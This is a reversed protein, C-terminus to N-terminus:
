LALVSIKVLELKKSTYEGLQYKSETWIVGGSGENGPADALGYVDILYDCYEKISGVFLPNSMKRGIDMASNQVSPPTHPCKELHLYANMIQKHFLKTSTLKQVFPNFQSNCNQCRLCIRKEGGNVEEILELNDLLIRCNRKLSYTRSAVISSILPVGGFPVLHTSLGHQTYHVLSIHEKAIPGGNFGNLNKVESEPNKISSPIERDEEMDVFTPAECEDSSSDSDLFFDTRAIKSNRSLPSSTPRKKPLKHDKVSVLLDKEVNPLIPPRLTQPIAQPVAAKPLINQKPPPKPPTSCWKVIVAKSHGKTTQISIKGVDTFNYHIAVFDCIQGLSLRTDNKKSVLKKQSEYLNTKINVPIARCTTMLHGVTFGYIIKDWRSLDFLKSKAQCYKCQISVGRYEENIENVKHSIENEKLAVLAIQETAIRHFPPMLSILSKVAAVNFPFVATSIPTEKKEKLLKEIRTRYVNQPDSEEEMQLLQKATSSKMNYDYGTFEWGHIGKNSVNRKWRERKTLSARLSAKSSQGGTKSVVRDIIKHDNCFYSMFEHFTIKGSSAFPAASILKAKAGEPMKTCNQLHICALSPLETGIKHVTWSYNNWNQSCFHCKFSILGTGEGSQNVRRDAIEVLDLYSVLQKHFSSLKDRHPSPDRNRAIPSLCIIPQPALLVSDTENDSNDSLIEIVEQKKASIRDGAGPPIPKNAVYKLPSTTIVKEISSPHNQNNKKPKITQHAYKKTSKTAQAQAQKHAQAQAKGKTEAQAMTTVQGMANAQIHSKGNSSKDVNSKKQNASIRKLRDMKQQCLREHYEAEEYTHFFASKCVDCAFCNGEFPSPEGKPIETEDNPNHLINLNKSPNHHSPLIDGPRTSIQINEPPSSNPYVMMNPRVNRNPTNSTSKSQLQQHQQQPHHKNKPGTCSREHAVAEDFSTFERERCVDCTWITQIPPKPNSQESSRRELKQQEHENHQQQQQQRNHQLNLEQAHHAHQSQKSVHNDHRVPVHHHHRDNRHKSINHHQPHHHQQHGHSSISPHVAHATTHMAVPHSTSHQGHARLHDQRHVPPLQGANQVAQVNTPAQAANPPPLTRAAQIPAPNPNPTAITCTAATSSAIPASLNVHQQGGHNAQPQGGAGNLDNSPAGKCLEEHSVAEEYTDFAAVKCVDCTWRTIEAM